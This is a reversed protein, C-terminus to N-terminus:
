PKLMTNRQQSFIKDLMKFIPRFYSPDLRTQIEDSWIQFVREAGRPMDIGLKGLVFDDISSLIKM